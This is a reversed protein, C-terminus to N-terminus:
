QVLSLQIQPNFTLTFLAFSFLSINFPCNYISSDSRVRLLPSAKPAQLHNSSASTLLDFENATSLLSNANALYRSAVLGSTTSTSTTSQKCIVGAVESARCDHVRWGDFPCQDLSAERGTCFLNDM